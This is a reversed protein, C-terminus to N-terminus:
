RHREPLPRARIALLARDDKDGHSTWATTVEELRQVVASIPMGVCTALAEKLRNTGYLETGVPGGSAETIGDTYLLCLEGPALEVTVPRLDLHDDIGLMSGSASVEEVSGDARLILPEPHGAVAVDILLRGARGPRLRALVLTAYADSAPTALLTQNILAILREPRNEVLLLTRLCHRIRGALVAARAGKGCVDGLVVLPADKGMGARAPVDLRVAAYPADQRDVGQPMGSRDLGYPAGPPLEDRPVGPRSPSPRCVDYFDGGILDTQQSPRLSGALEAEDLVPLEPPLLDETLIANTASQEQYLLASAIAAGARVAFARVLSEAAADFPPAGERRALVLVGAPTGNGPLPTMLLHAAQGFGEPLLWGPARAADIRLHPMAAYGYLADTLEPLEAVSRAEGERVTSGWATARLWSHSRRHDPLLLVTAADALFSAALEATARACRRTNLSGSLRHGAEVLFEAREHAPSVPRFEAREHAPSLPRAGAPVEGAVESLFWAQHAPGVMERRVRVTRGGHVTLRSVGIPTAPDFLAAAADLSAPDLPFPDTDLSAPDLPVPGADLSAPDFLAAAAGLIGPAFPGAATAASSTPLGPIADPAIRVAAANALLVRGDADCLVVGEGSAELLARMLTADPTMAPAPLLDTRHHAPLESTAGSIDGTPRERSM